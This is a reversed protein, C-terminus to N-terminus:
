SFQFFSPVPFDESPPNDVLEDLLRCAAEYIQQSKHGQLKEIRQVGGLEGVMERVKGALERNGVCYLLLGRTGELAEAVLDQDSSELSDLFLGLVGSHLMQRTASFDCHKTAHAFAIVAEKRLALDSDHAALQLQHYLSHHFLLQMQSPSGATLNSLSWLIEKRIYRKKGALLPEFADLLDKDLVKDVQQDTGVFLNGVVKVAALAVKSSDHRLFGKVSPVVGLDLVAQILAFDGSATAKDLVSCSDLIFSLSHSYSLAIPVSSLALHLTSLAPYPLGQCFNSFLWIANSIIKPCIATQLLSFVAEPIGRQIADDRFEREEGIINSITWITQDVIEAREHRLLRLAYELFGCKAVLATMQPTGCSINTLCWCSHFVLSPDESDLFSVLASISRESASISLLKEEGVALYTRLTEVVLRLVSGREQLLDCLEAVLEEEDEILESLNPYKVLLEPPLFGRNLNSHLPTLQSSLLARRKCSQDTRKQKRLEVFAFDRKLRIESLNPSQFAKARAELKDQTLM